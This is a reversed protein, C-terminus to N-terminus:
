RAFDHLTMGFAGLGAQNRPTVCFMLRFGKLAFVCINRQKLARGTRSFVDNIYFITSDPVFFDTLNNDLTTASVWRTGLRGVLLMYIYLRWTQDHCM